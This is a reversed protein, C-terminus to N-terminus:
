AVDALSARAQRMAMTRPVKRTGVIAVCLAGEDPLLTGRVYLLPPPQARGALADARPHGAEDFRLVQVGRTRPGPREETEVM